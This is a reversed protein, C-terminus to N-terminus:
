AIPPEADCFTKMPECALTIGPQEEERLAANLLVRLRLTSGTM